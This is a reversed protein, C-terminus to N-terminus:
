GYAQVALHVALGLGAVAILRRLLLQPARRVVSPGLRGGVFLGIALPLAASWAVPALVVFGISAVLNALGLVVNRLANGTALGEGTSLLFMALMMVGAAAGFYGGYIAIAFTGLPLWWPDRHTPHAAAGQAALERPPRQVLLAVAAGAILWPVIREFAESPTLLLLAAGAAGGVVAGASLRLLRRSQGRLEPRSASVSGVGNLVLAVTNTVNAAVPPLGTALLAPYSVLSALGAISGTLGGGVGALVLFAFELPTM